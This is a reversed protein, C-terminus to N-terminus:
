GELELRYDHFVEADPDGASTPALVGDVYKGPQRTVRYTVDGDLTHFVLASAHVFTLTKSFPRDPTGTAFVVPQPDVLTLWGESQGKEVNKESTGTVQPPTNRDDISGIRIGALPKPAVQGTVVDRFSPHGDDDLAAVRVIDDEGAYRHIHLLQSESM